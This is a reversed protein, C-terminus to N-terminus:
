YVLFLQHDSSAVHLTDLGDCHLILWKFLPYHAWDSFLLLSGTLEMLINQLSMGLLIRLLYNATIYPRDERVRSWEVTLKLSDITNWFSTTRFRIKSAGIPTTKPESYSRKSYLQSRSILAPRVDYTYHQPSSPCTHYRIGHLSSRTAIHVSEDKSAIFNQQM